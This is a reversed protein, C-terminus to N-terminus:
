RGTLRQAEVIVQASVIVAQGILDFERIDNQEVLRIHHRGLCDITDLRDDLGQIRSDV